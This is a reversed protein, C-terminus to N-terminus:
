HFPSSYGCEVDVHGTYIRVQPSLFVLLIEAVFILHCCCLCSVSPMSFRLLSRTPKTTQLTLSLYHLYTTPHHLARAIAISVFAFQHPQATEETAKRRRKVRMNYLDRAVPIRETYIRNRIVYKMFYKRASRPMSYFVNPPLCRRPLHIHKFYEM